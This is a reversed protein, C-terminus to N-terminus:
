LLEQFARPLRTLLDSATIGVPGLDRAALDGARGHLRVALAAARFCREAATAGRVQGILAAILGTLVDGMGGTAMGPNGTKNEVMSRGDDVLTKAGKLVAVAGFKAALARVAARRDKQVVATSVKLLRAAEGPHPTIVWPAKRRSPRKAAALANLADADAVVPASLTEL